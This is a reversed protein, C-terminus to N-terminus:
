AMKDDENGNVGAHGLYCIWYIYQIFIITQLHKTKLGIALMCFFFAQVTVDAPITIPVTSKSLFPHRRTFKKSFPTHIDMM